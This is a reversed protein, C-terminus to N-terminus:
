GEDSEARPVRQGVDTEEVMGLSRYRSSPVRSPFTELFPIIECRDGPRDM